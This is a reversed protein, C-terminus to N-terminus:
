EELWQENLDGRLPGFAWFWRRLVWIERERFCKRTAACVKKGGCGRRRTRREDQAEAAKEKKGGCGRTRTRREDQAETAKESYLISRIFDKDTFGRTITTLYQWETILILVDVLRAM